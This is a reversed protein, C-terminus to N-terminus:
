CSYLHSRWSVLLDIAVGLDGSRCDEATLQPLALALRKLKSAENFFEKAETLSIRWQTEDGSDTGKSIHLYYLTSSHKRVCGFDFAGESCQDRIQLYELGSFSKLFTEVMNIRNDRSDNDYIFGRLSSGYAIYRRALSGLLGNVSTCDHLALYQIAEVHMVETLPWGLLDIYEFCLETVSVKQFASRESTSLHGFLGQFVIGGAESKRELLARFDTRKKSEMVGRTAIALRSLRPCTQIVRGYFELGKHSGLRWPLDIARLATLWNSPHPLAGNLRDFIPGSILGKLYRQQTCLTMLTDRDLDIDQHIEFHQLANRPILQLALRIARQGSKSKKPNHSSQSPIILSRVYPHGSNDQRFFGQDEKWGEVLVVTEYLCPTAISRVQKSTLCLSKLDTTRTVLAVVSSQIESPISDVLSPPM